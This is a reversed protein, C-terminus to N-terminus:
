ENNSPKLKFYLKFKTFDTFLSANNKIWNIDKDWWKFELLFSIDEESYRYKIIRAPIGGVIAYPPIDKTVVAGALIVSGDGITVGSIISAGEGIWCDNGIIVPYKEEIYKFENFVQKKAFTYGNQKSLSIFAPSTSVYPYTYPHIGQIVRVNSAISTFRGIKGAICSSKAIYSGTGLYGDFQCDPYIKNMGEFFSRLSIESSFTFSLKRHWRFLIYLYKVLRKIYYIM